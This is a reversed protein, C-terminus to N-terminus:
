GRAAKSNCPRGDRIQSLDRPAANLSLKKSSLLRTPIVERSVDLRLGELHVLFGQVKSIIIVSIILVRKWGNLFHMTQTSVPIEDFTAVDCLVAAHVSGSRHRIAKRRAAHDQVHILTAVVRIILAPQIYQVTLRANKRRNGSM